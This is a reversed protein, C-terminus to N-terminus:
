NPTVQILRGPSSKARHFEYADGRYLTKEWWAANPGSYGVASVLFAPSGIRAQLAKAEKGM